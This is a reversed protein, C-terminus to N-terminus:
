RRGWKVERGRDKGYSWGEGESRKKGGRNMGKQREGKKDENRVKQRRVRWREGQHWCGPM